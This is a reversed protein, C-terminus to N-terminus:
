TTTTSRRIQRRGRRATGDVIFLAVAVQTSEPLIATAELAQWGETGGRIRGSNAMGVVAMDKGFILVAAHVHHAPDLESVDAHGAFTVRRAGRSVYDGCANFVAAVGDDDDDTDVQKDDGTGWGIPGHKMSWEGSRAREQTPMLKNVGADGTAWRGVPLFNSAPEVLDGSEFDTNVLVQVPDFPAATAYAALLTASLLALVLALRNM